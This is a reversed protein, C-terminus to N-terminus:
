ISLFELETPQQRKEHETAAIFIRCIDDKRDSIRKYFNWVYICQLFITPARDIKNTSEGCIKHYTYIFKFYFVKKLNTNSTTNADM